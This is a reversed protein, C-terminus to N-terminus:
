CLNREYKITAPSRNLAKKEDIYAEFADEITIGQNPANSIRRKMGM